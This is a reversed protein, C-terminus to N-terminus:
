FYFSFPLRVEGKIKSCYKITSDEVQQQYLARIHYVYRAHAALVGDKKEALQSIINVTGIHAVAFFKDMKPILDGDVYYHNINDKVKKLNALSGYQKLM